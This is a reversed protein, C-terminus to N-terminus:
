YSWPIQYGLGRIVAVTVVGLIGCVCFIGIVAQIPHNRQRLETIHILVYWVAGAGGTILFGRILDGTNAEVIEESQFLRSLDYDLDERVRDTTKNRIKVLRPTL